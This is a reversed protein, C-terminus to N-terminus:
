RLDREVLTRAFRTAADDDGVDVRGCSNAHGFDLVERDVRFYNGIDLLNLHILSDVVSIYTNYLVGEMRIFRIRMQNQINRHYEECPVELDAARKSMPTSPM